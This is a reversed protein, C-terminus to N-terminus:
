RTGRAEEYVRLLELVPIDNITMGELESTRIQANRLNSKEIIIGDLECETFQSNSIDYNPGFQLPIRERDGVGASTCGFHTGAIDIAAFRANRMNIDGFHVNEMNVNEFVAGSLNVDEFKTGSLNMNKFTSNPVSANEHHLSESMRTDGRKM